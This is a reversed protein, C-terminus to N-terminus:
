FLIGWRNMKLCEFCVQSHKSYSISLRVETLTNCIDNMQASTNQHLDSSSWTDQLRQREQFLAEHVSRLSTHVTNSCSSLSDTKLNCLTRWTFIMWQRKTELYHSIKRSFFFFNIKKKKTRTNRVDKPCPASTRTSREAKLTALPPQPLLSPTSMTLSPHCQPVWTPRHSSFVIPCFM